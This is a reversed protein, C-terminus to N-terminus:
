SGAARGGPLFHTTTVAAVLKGEDDRVKTEVVATQRGVHLAISEARLTTDRRARIINGSLQIGLPFSAADLSDPDVLVLNGSRAAPVLVRHLSSSYRLDDFGIGPAGDPMAVRTGDPSTCGLSIVCAAVAGLPRM